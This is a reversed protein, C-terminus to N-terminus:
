ANPSFIQPPLTPALDGCLKVIEYHWIGWCYLMKVANEPKGIALTYAFDSGTKKL